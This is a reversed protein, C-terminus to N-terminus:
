KIKHKLEFTLTLGLGDMIRLITDLKPTVEFTEIKSLQSQTM